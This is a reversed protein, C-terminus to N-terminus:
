DGLAFGSEDGNIAPPNWSNSGAAASEIDAAVRDLGPLIVAQEVAWLKLFKRQAERVCRLRELVGSLDEM